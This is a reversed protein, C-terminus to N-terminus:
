EHRMAGALVDGRAALPPWQPAGAASVEVAAKRAANILPEASIPAGVAEQMWANPTISGLRCMREM